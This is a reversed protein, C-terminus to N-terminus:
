LAYSTAESMTFNLVIFEIIIASKLRVDIGTFPLRYEFITIRWTHWSRKDRAWPCLHAGHFLQIWKHYSAAIRVHTSSFMSM